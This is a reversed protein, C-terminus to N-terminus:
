SAIASLPYAVNSRWGNIEHENDKFFKEQQSLNMLKFPDQNLLEILKNNIPNFEDLLDYRETIPDDLFIRYHEYTDREIPGYRWVYFPQNYMDNIVENILDHQLAYKMGFYMVKQLQIGTIPIGQESALAIIHHAFDNMRM